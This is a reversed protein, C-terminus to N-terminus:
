RELLVRLRRARERFADEGGELIDCVARRIKGAGFSGLEDAATGDGGPGVARGSAGAGTSDGLRGLPRLGDVSKPGELSYHESDSVLAVM